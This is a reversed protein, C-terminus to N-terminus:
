FTGGVVLGFFAGGIGGAVFGIFGGISGPVRKRKM